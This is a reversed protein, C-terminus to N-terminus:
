ILTILVSVSPPIFAVYQPSSPLTDYKVSKEFYPRYVVKGLIEQASM